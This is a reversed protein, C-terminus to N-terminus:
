TGPRKKKRRRAVVVGLAALAFVVFTGLAGMLYPLASRRTAPPKSLVELELLAALGSTFAITAPREQQPVFALAFRFSGRPADPATRVQFAFEQRTRPALSIETSEPEVWSCRESEELFPAGGPDQMVELIRPSLELSEEGLNIITVTVTAPEGPALSLSIRTPTISIWEQGPAPACPLLIFLALAPLLLGPRLGPFRRKRAYTIRGDRLGASPLGPTVGASVVPVGKRHQLVM